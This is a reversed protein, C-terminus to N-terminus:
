APTRSDTTPRHVLGASSALGRQFVHRETQGTPADSGHAARPWGSRCADPPSPTSNRRLQSGQTGTPPTPHFTEPNCRASDPSSRSPPSPVSARSPSQKRDADTLSRLSIGEKTVRSRPQEVSHGHVPSGDLHIFFVNPALIHRVCEHTGHECEHSCLSYRFNTLTPM